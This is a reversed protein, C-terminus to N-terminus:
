RQKEDNTILLLNLHDSFKEKSIPYAQKNEHGFVNININNQKEIKNFVNIKVPFEVGSYDLKNLAVRGLWRTLAPM